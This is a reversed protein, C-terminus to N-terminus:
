NKVTVELKIKNGTTDVAQGEYITVLNLTYTTGPKVLSPKELTVLVYDNDEDKEADTVQAYSVKFAEKMSKSTGKAFDAGEIVADMPKKAKQKVLISVTRAAEDGGVFVTAKAPTTKVEPIIQKPTVTVDQYVTDLDPAATLTTKIRLKYNKGNKVPTDDKTTIYVRRSDNPDIEANFHIAEGQWAGSDNVEDLSVDSIGSVINSVTATYTLMSANDVPNMNGSVSFKVKPEAKKLDVIVKFPKIVAGEAELGKVTYTYKKGAFYSSDDTLKLSAMGEEYELEAITDFEPVGAGATIEYDSGPEVATILTGTPTNGLTFTTHRTEIGPYKANMTFTSNKLKMTAQQSKVNVKFAVEQGTSIDSDAGLLQVKPKTKFSYTGEPIDSPLAIHLEGDSYNMAGALAEGGASMSAKGTFYTDELETVTADAQDTSAFLVAENSAFNPNLLATTTNFKVKPLKNVTNLTFTYKLEKTWEEMRVYLVTKGAKPSGKVVLEIEDDSKAKAIDLDEYGTFTSNATIGLGEYYKGKETDDLSELSVPLKTKKDLLFISYSQGTALESATASKRSLEYSPATNCTPVKFSRKIYNSFGEYRIYLYGSLVDKKDKQLMENESRTILFANKDEDYVVDFNNDFKDEAYIESKEPDFGSIKHNEESVLYCVEPVTKIDQKVTVIGSDTIDAKENYFLNVKGSNTFKPDPAKNTVELKTIPTHFSTDADEGEPNLLKGTIYLQSDKEYTKKFSRGETANKIYYGGKEDNYYVILDTNKKWTVAGNSATKKTCLTLEEDMIGYGYQPILDALVGITSLSNVTLSSKALRPTTDVVRIIVKKLNGERPEKEGANLVQVKIMTEGKSSKKITIKNTNDESNEKAVTAVNKNSSTWKSKVVLPQSTNGEEYANMYLTLTVATTKLYTYDFTIAPIEEEGYTETTVTGHDVDKSSIKEIEISDIISDAQVKVQIKIKKSSDAKLTATIDSIGVSVTRIVGTNSVAAVKTNSSSYNWLWSNTPSNNSDYIVLQGERGAKNFIYQDASKDYNPQYDNIPTFGATLPTKVVESKKAMTVNVTAQSSPMEFSFVMTSGDLKEFKVDTKTVATVSVDKVAYDSSSKGSEVKPTVKVEVTDGPYAKGKIDVEATDSPTLRKTITFEPYLTKFKYGRKVAYDKVGGNYGYMTIKSNSPFASEAIKFDETTNLVESTYIYITTIGTCGDFANTKFIMVNFFSLLTLANCNAFASDGIETTLSKDTGTGIYLESLKVCNYFARAPIEEIDDPLSVKTLSACEEFARQGISLGTSRSLDASRVGSSSFAGIGISSISSVFAMSTIASCNQFAYDGITTLNPFNIYTLDSCGSFAANGVSQVGEFEVTAIRSNAFTREGIVTLSNPVGTIKSVFSGEFAGAEIDTLLSGSEFAVSKVVTDNKFIDAPITVAEKPITVSSKLSYGSKLKLVGNVVEFCDSAAGLAGKEVGSDENVTVDVDDSSVTETETETKSVDVQAEEAEKTETETAKLAADSIEDAEDTGNKEDVEEKSSVEATELTVASQQEAAYATMMSPESALITSVSLLLALIRRARM